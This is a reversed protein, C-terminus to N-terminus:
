EQLILYKKFQIMKIYYYSNESTLFIPIRSKAESVLIVKLPKPDGVANPGINTATAILKGLVREEQVEVVEDRIEM